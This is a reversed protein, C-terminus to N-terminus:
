VEIVGVSLSIISTDSSCALFLFLFLFLYCNEVGQQSFKRRSVLKVISKLLEDKAQYVTKCILGNEM